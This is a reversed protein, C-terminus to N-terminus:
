VFRACIPDSCARTSSLVWEPLAEQEPQSLDVRARAGRLLPASSFRVPYSKVRLARMDTKMPSSM